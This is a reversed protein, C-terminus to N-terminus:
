VGSAKKPLTFTFKTGKGPASEVWIRGKHMEVIGKVISLGLGTGKAGGGATRHFQVFKEFVKPMNEEAIGMGTDSVFCEVEGEKEKISVEITGSETFKIANGILNTFVQMIRDPDIEINVAGKPIDLKIELCKKLAEKEFLAAAEKILNALDVTKKKLEVKGAEIKSIDLLDNIIRALRDINSNATRLIDKQKPNVKGPIEDVVLSIGEKTISLPTRLEHSVTSIFESKLEDLKMLEKNKKELEAQAKKIQSIDKSVHVSGVLEGKENLIPSTTILLPIGINKDDVEEMHSHKDLKTKEFPCNPWPHNLKHLVDFCKRGIIEEPKAGLANLMSKNAKLITNDAAQIFVFDSMADFTRQWEEAALRLKEQATKVETIDRVTAQLITEGRLEMRTLLVSAFFEKGTDLRKHTWEFAHSGKKMAIDMMQQAKVSSSVDDPQYKPSLIEPSMGLFEKEDKCGFMELTAPNGAVFGKSPVVLMIADKSSNYITRYQIESDRVLAEAKKREVVEKNLADISTTTTKLHTTMQDFARSLQGIEDRADTGVKYDLNGEGIIESGKHLAHIPAIIRRALLAGLGWAALPILCLTLIFLLHIIALPAFAESLDMEALLVWQMQPIYARSGLVKIGRYDLCILVNPEQATHLYSGKHSLASRFNDSDVRQKLFTGTLFRSPTIMYGYKNVIYVEGTKGLGTRETLIEDLETLKIRAALVGLLENTNSDLFPCSVAILPEKSIDSYYVDKINVQKQGIIFLTDTSKDQGINDINNSAVVKGNADILLFESIAPNAEKTRELRKIATHLAEKNNDKPNEKLAHLLDELVVSKSLQMVSAKLMELYTQVHQARSQAIGDLDNDIANELNNRAVVYFVSSAAITLLLAVGLFSITIKNGIKM